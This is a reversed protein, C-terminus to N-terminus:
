ITASVSPLLEGFFQYVDYLVPVVTHGVEGEWSFGSFHPLRWALAYVVAVVGFVLQHKLKQEALSLRHISRISNGFRFAILTVMSVLVHIWRGWDSGIIFLPVTASIALVVTMMYKPGIRVLTFPLVALFVVPVYILNPREMGVEFAQNSTWGIFDIAGACIDAPLGRSVLADCIQDATTASGSFVISVAAVAVGLVGTAVVTWQLALRKWKKELFVAGLAVLALPSFFVLGEHSLGLLVFTVPWSALFLAREFRGEMPSKSWVLLLGFACLLLVEKRFGGAPDWFHFLLFAPSVLALVGWVAQPFSRYLILTCVMLVVFAFAQLSLIFNLPSSGFWDSSLVAAQGLLGRRVFGAEYNVLFDGTRWIDPEDLDAVVMRLLSYILPTLVALILALSFVGTLFKRALDGM